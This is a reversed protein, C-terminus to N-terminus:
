IHLYLVSPVFKVSMPSGTDNVVEVVEPSTCGCIIKDAIVAKCFTALPLVIVNLNYAHPAVPAPPVSAKPVPLTFLRAIPPVTVDVIEELASRELKVNLM